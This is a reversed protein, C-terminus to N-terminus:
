LILGRVCLTPLSRLCYPAGCPGSRPQQGGSGPTTVRLLAATSRPRAAERRGLPPVAQILACLPWPGYPPPPPPSAAIEPAPRPLVQEGRLPEDRPTHTLSRFLLGMLRRQGGQSVERPAPPLIVHPTLCLALPHCGGYKSGSGLWM